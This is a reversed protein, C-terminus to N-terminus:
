KKVLLKPKHIKKAGYEFYEDMENCCSECVMKIICNKCPCHESFEEIIEKFESKCISELCGDCNNM